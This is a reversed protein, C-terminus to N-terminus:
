LQPTVSHCITGKFRNTNYYFILLRHPADVTFSIILTYDRSVLDGASKYCINLYCCIEFTAM